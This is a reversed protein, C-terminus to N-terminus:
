LIIFIIFAIYKKLLNMKGAYRNTIITVNLSNYTNTKARKDFKISSVCISQRCKARYNLPYFMLNRIKTDCTRNRGSDRKQYSKTNTKTNTFRTNNSTFTTISIVCYSLLYLMVSKINPDQTRIGITDCIARMM